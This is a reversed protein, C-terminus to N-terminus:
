SKTEKDEAAPAAGAELEKEAAEAYALAEQAEKAKREAAARATAAQIKKADAAREAALKGTESDADFKTPDISKAMDQAAEKVGDMATGVPNTAAKLGKAVDKVGAEDAADNMARSFERAMGKAKGVFRGVNRFLVPLDKPGVVILAVVGVVMLETWGLDFM